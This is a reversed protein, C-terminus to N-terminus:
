IYVHYWTYWIENQDSMLSSLFVTLRLWCLIIFFFIINRWQSKSVKSWWNWYPELWHLLCGDLSFRTWISADTRSSNLECANLCVCLCVRLCVAIFIYGRWSKTSTYWNVLCRMGIIGNYFIWHMFFANLACLKVDITM